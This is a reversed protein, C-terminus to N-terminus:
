TIRKFYKKLYLKISELNNNRKECLDAKKSKQLYSLHRVLQDSTHTLCIIISFNIIKDQQFIEDPYSIAACSIM